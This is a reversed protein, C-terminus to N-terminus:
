SRPEIRRYPGKGPDERYVRWFNKVAWERTGSAARVFVVNGEIRTVIRPKDGNWTRYLQGVVVGGTAARTRGAKECMACLDPAPDDDPDTRDGCHCCGDSV